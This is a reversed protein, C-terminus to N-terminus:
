LGTLAETVELRAATYGCNSLYVNNPTSQLCQVCSALTQGAFAGGDATCYQFETGNNPSVNGTELASQLPNCAMDTACPSSSNQIKAPYEFLCVDVTYRLNDSVHTLGLKRPELRVKSGLPM